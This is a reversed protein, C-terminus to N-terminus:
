KCRPGGWLWQGLWKGRCIARKGPNSERDTNHERFWTRWSDVDEPEHRMGALKGHRWITCAIIIIDHDEHGQLALSKCVIQITTSSWAWLGSIFTPPPRFVLRDPLTADTSPKFFDRHLSEMLTLDSINTLHASYHEM